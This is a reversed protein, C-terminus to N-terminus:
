GQMVEYRAGRAAAARAAEKSPAPAARAKPPGSLSGLELKGGARLKAQAAKAIGTAEAWAMADLEGM